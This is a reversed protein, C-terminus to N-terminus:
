KWLRIQGVYAHSANGGRYLELDTARQHLVSGVWIPAVFNVWRIATRHPAIAGSTVLSPGPGGNAGPLDPFSVTGPGDPNDILLDADRGDGEFVLPAGARNAISVQLSVLTGHGEPYASPWVQFNSVRFPILRTALLQADYGPMHLVHAEDRVNYVTGGGFPGQGRECMGEHAAPTSIQAAECTPLGLGVWSRVSPHTGLILVLRMVIVVLAVAGVGARRRRRRVLGLMRLLQFAVSLM